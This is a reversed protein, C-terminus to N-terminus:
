TVPAAAFKCLVIPITQWSEALAADKALQSGQQLVVM